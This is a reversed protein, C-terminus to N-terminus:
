KTTRKFMPEKKVPSDTATASSEAAAKIPSKASKLPSKREGM